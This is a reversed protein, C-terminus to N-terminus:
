DTYKAVNSADELIKYFKDCFVQLVTSMEMLRM